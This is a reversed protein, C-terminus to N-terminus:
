RYKLAEDRRYGAAGLLGFVVGYAALGLWHEARWPIGLAASWVVEGFMRTPLVPSIREVVEPLVGPGTWLAGAYALALYLLNALPLAARPHTWYGLAIGLLGFPVSGALLAVV